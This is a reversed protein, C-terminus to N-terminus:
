ITIAGYLGKRKRKAAAQRKLEREHAARSEKEGGRRIFENCAEQTTRYENSTKHGRIQGSSILYRVRKVNTKLYEAAEKATLVTVTSSM